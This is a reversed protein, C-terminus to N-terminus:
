AHILKTRPAVCLEVQRAGEREGEELRDDYLPLLVLDM